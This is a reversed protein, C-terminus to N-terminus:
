PKFFVFLIIILAVALIPYVVKKILLKNKSKLCAEERIEDKNLIAEIKEIIQKEGHGQKLIFDDAGAHFLKIALEKDKNGSLIFVHINPNYKKIELLTDYGSMGPLNYDLIIVDPNQSLHKICEEGSKFNEFRYISDKSLIYDLMMAYIENDEVIFIPKPINTFM